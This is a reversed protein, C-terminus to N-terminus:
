RVPRAAIGHRVYHEMLTEDVGDFNDAPHRGPGCCPVCHYVAAMRHCDCSCGGYARPLDDDHLPPLLSM